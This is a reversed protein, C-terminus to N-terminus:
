RPRHFPVCFRNACHAVKLASNTLDYYSILPLGDVGITVSSYRGVNSASDLTIAAHAMWASVLGFVLALLFPARVSGLADAEPDRSRRRRSPVAHSGSRRM